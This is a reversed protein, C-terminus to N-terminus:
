CGQNCTKLCQRLQFNCLPNCMGPNPCNEICQNYQESCTSCCVTQASAKEPLGSSLVTFGAVLIVLALFKRVLKKIEPRSM